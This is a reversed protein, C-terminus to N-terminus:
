KHVNREEISIVHGSILRLENCGVFNTEGELNEVIQMLHVPKNNPNPNPQSPLQPCM